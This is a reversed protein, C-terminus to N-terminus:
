HDALARAAAEPEREIVRLLAMAAADPKTRGAEWTRVLDLPLGYRHAFVDQSLGLRTRLLRVRRGAVARELQEDTAPPCDPDALAAAVIEEESM